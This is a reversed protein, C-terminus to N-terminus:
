PSTKSSAATLIVIDQFSVGKIGRWSGPLSRSVGLGADAVMRAFTERDYAVAAEPVDATQLFCGDSRHSFVFDARGAEIAARAPEDLLFATIFVRGGPALVRAIQQLYNQTGDALMHTFVSTLFIFDFSSHPFPFRYEAAAAGGAPNYSQNFLDAHHFRFNAFPAYARRCWDISPGVIDLGDYSGTTLYAALPRAVRGSGCGVDLVREDPRLGGLEVLHHFLQDGVRRFNGVGVSHLTRPPLLRDGSWLRVAENKAVLATVHLRHRLEQRLRSFSMYASSLDPLFLSVLPSCGRREQAIAPKSAASWRGM